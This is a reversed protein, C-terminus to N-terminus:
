PHHRRESPRFLVGCDLCLVEALAGHTRPLAGMKGATNPMKGSVPADGRYIVKHQHDVRLEPHAAAIGLLAESVVDAPENILKKM